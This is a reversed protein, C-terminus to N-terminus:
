SSLKSPDDSKGSSAEMRCSVGGFYVGCRGGMAAPEAEGETWGTDKDTGGAPAPDTATAAAVNRSVVVM